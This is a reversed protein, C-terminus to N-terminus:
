LLPQQYKQFAQDLVYLEGPSLANDDSKFTIGERLMSGVVGDIVVSYVGNTSERRLRNLHILGFRDLSGGNESTDATDPFLNKEIDSLFLYTLKLQAALVSSFVDLVKKTEVDSLNLRNRLDNRASEYLQSITPINAM